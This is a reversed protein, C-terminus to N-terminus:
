LNRPNGRYHVDGQNKDAKGPEKEAQIPVTDKEDPVADKPSSLLLEPNRTALAEAEASATQAKEEPKGLVKQNIQQAFIDIQPMVEDLGKTQAYFSVPDKGSVPAMKADISVSQGASTISGFLVFDAKLAAGIQMAENLSIEKTGRTAARDTESKGVVQVKGQVALRSALMDRVGSQLYNLNAPTNMSFPLIALRVSGAEEAAAMGPTAFWSFFSLLVACLIVAKRGLM